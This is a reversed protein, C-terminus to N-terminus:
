DGRLPGHSGRRAPAGTDRATSHEVGPRGTTERGDANPAAPESAKAAAEPNDQVEADKKGGPWAPPMDELKMKSLPMFADADGRRITVYPEHLRMIVLDGPLLKLAKRVDRPVVICWSAGSKWCRATYLPGRGM